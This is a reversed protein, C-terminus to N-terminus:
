RSGIDIRVWMYVNNLFCTTVIIMIFKIVLGPPPLGVRSFKLLISLCLFSLMLFPSRVCRGNQKRSSLSIRSRRFVTGFLPRNILSAIRSLSCVRPMLQFWGPVCLLPLSGWLFRGDKLRLLKFVLFWSFCEPPAGHCPASLGRSRCPRCWPHLEM